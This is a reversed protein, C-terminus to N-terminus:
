AWINPVLAKIDTTAEKKCNSAGHIVVVWGEGAPALGSSLPLATINMCRYFLYILYKYFFYLHFPTYNVHFFINLVRDITNAWVSTLPQAAKSIVSTNAQAFRANFQTCVHYQGAQSARSKLPLDGSLKPQKSAIGRSQPYNTYTFMVKGHRMSVPASLAILFQSTIVHAAAREYVFQSTCYISGFIKLNGNIICTISFKPKNVM